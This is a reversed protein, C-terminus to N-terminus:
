FKAEKEREKQTSQEICVKVALRGSIAEEEAKRKWEIPVM